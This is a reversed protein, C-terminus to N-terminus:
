VLHKCNWIANSEVLIKSGYNVTVTGNNEISLTSEDRVTFVGKNNSPILINDGVVLNGGNRIVINSPHCAATSVNFTSGTIAFLAQYGSNRNYYDSFGNKNIHLTGSNEVTLNRFIIDDTNAAFNYNDTTSSIVWDNSGFNIEDILWNAIETTISAHFQNNLLPSYYGDFPIDCTHLSNSNVDALLDYNELGLASVTPVFCANPHYLATEVGPIYNLMAEEIEEYWNIFGGPASCYPQQGPYSGKYHLFLPDVHFYLYIDNSIPPNSPTLTMFGSFSTLNESDRMYDLAITGPVNGPQILGTKNGNAIAINRCMTPYGSNQNLGELEQIFLPHLPHPFGDGPSGGFGTTYEYHYFLMQKAAFSNFTNVGAVQAVALPIGALQNATWHQIALPFNAGLHPTDYSVYLRTSPSLNNVEMYVLGYRAVLGGMSIGVVVNQEISGNAIKIGNVEEILKVFLFANRQIYDGSFNFNLIVIDYGMARLRNISSGSQVSNIQDYVAAPNIALAPDYEFFDIGEIFIIPRTLANTNGNATKYWVHYEGTGQQSLYPITAVCPAILNPLPACLAIGSAFLAGLLLMSKIKM